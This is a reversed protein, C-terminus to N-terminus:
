SRRIENELLAEFSRAFAAADFLPSSRAAQARRRGEALAAPSAAMAVIADHAASPNDFCWDSLGAAGLVSAAMRSAFTEGRTTVLPVGAWLADSATTHSTCPFTDLAVDSNGLRALHEEPGV